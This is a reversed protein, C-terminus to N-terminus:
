ARQRNKCDLNGSVRCDPCLLQKARSHLPYIETDATRTTKQYKYGLIGQAHYLSSITM